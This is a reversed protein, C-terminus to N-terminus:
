RFNEVLMLSGSLAERQSYLITRRDPSVALGLYWGRISLLSILRSTAFDFFYLIGPSEFSPSSIVYLGDEVLAINMGYSLPEAIVQTEQGGGLPMRWIRIGDMYKVYYLQKGDASESASGTGGGRTVQVAAGGGSPVKWLQGKQGGFYVWKGDRSWTPWDGGEAVRRFAGGNASVIDIGRAGRLLSHIVLSQGDPSWRPNAVMPGGAVTLQQPNTGDADATWIEQAGSRHSNFVIRKGDPTYEPNSDIRTSSILKSPPGALETRSRLRVAWIDSDFVMRSYALRRGDLSTALTWADEGLPERRPSRGPAASVRWLGRQALHAGSSFIIDREDPMWAPCSLSENMSTIRVPEGRPVGDDSLNMVYLDSVLSDIKKIYALSRGDASFVPSLSSGTTLRKKEGTDLFLLFLGAPEIGSTSQAVVLARSDRTWALFSHFLLMLREIKIEAVEREPGGLAPVLRVTATEDLSVRLFAIWRGDPSWAPSRDMAPNTTLRLPEGPGILKVYIDYNDQKGGNWSFAISNGDPSFSPCTEDGGNATLPVARLQAAPASPRSRYFWLSAIILILLAAGVGFRVLTRRRSRALPATQTLEGSDSEEKLEQLAVKLDDMHQFRQDPDKRLCRRVIKETDRPMGEAMQSIPKPDERLISAITSARTDGRFARQGTLMEYLTSGFSFIDSRTDIHKGEAQEPSMYAATGLIMGAGTRTAATEAEPGSTETLKALGFDLVKVLGHEDVMVNSPKLDRHIIGAGHARALADAIQVAYKLALSLRMGKRPILEDLTKGAVYEMAIYDTGDAQDIDHITIINPHNLASAAKAEQIFRRKRDPDSVKEPPLVKLAAFRDLHTDRAKYVVGMGGEGLKETIQYHGLAKGIM